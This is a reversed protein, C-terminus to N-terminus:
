LTPMFTNGPHFALKDDTKMCSWVVTTNARVFSIASIDHLSMVSGTQVSSDLDTACVCFHHRSLYRPQFDKDVIRKVCMYQNTTTFASWSIYFTDKLPLELNAWTLPDAHAVM